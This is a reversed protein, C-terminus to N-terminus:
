RPTKTLTIAVAQCAKEFAPATDKGEAGITASCYYSEKGGETWWAYVVQTAEINGGNTEAVLLRSTKGKVDKVVKGGSIISQFYEDVVKTWDKPKCEGGCNASVKMGTTFGLGAESPADFSAFMESGSRKWGKPFALTYTTKSRGLDTAIDQKEFVLKDKFAAPVLANVAAPDIAIGTGLDAGDSDGGKKGCAATVLLLSTFALQLTKM